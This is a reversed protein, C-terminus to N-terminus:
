DITPRERYPPIESRRQDYAENVRQFQAADYWTPADQCWFNSTKGYSKCDGAYPGYCRKQLDCLYIIAHSAQSLTLLLM